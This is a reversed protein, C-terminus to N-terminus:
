FFILKFFSTKLLYYEFKKDQKYDEKVFALKEFRLM